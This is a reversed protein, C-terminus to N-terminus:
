KRYYCMTAPTIQGQAVM